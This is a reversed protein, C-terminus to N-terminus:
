FVREWLSLTLPYLCSIKIGEDWGEGMPLLPKKSNKSTGIFLVLYFFNGKYGISKRM